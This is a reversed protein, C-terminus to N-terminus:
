NSKAVNSRGQPRLWPKWIILGILLLLGGVWESLTPFHPHPKPFLLERILSWLSGFAGFGAGLADRGNHRGSYVGVWVFFALGFAYCIIWADHRFSPHLAFLDLTIAAGIHAGGTLPHAKIWSAFSKKSQGSM